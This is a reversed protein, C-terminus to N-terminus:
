YNNKLLFEDISILFLEREKFGRAKMFAVARSYLKPPISIKTTISILSKPANLTTSNQKDDM